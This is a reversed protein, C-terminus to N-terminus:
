KGPEGGGYKLLLQQMVLPIEEHQDRLERAHDLLMQVVPKGYQTEQKWLAGHQILLDVARWNRANAAWGVAGGESHRLSLDAKAALLLKLCEFSADENSELAHWWTPRVDVSNPNAGAGLLLATMEPGDGIATWLPWNTSHAPINPNAGATILAKVVEIGRRGAGPDPHGRGAIFAKDLAFSLFTEGSYNINLDGALPILRSVESADLANIAHALNRQAPRRFNDDGALSSITQHSSWAEYLPAFAIGVLPFVLFVLAAITVRNSRAYHVALGVIGLLVLPMLLLWAGVAGGDPSAPRRSFIFNVITGLAVVM